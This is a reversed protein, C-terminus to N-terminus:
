NDINGASIELKSRPNQSDSIQTFRGQLQQDEHDPLQFVQSNEIENDFSKNQESKHQNFAQCDQNIKSGRSTFADFQSLGDDSMENVQQRAKPIRNIKNLDISEQKSNRADAM